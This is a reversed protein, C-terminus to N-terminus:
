FEYIGEIDHDAIQGWGDHWIGTEAVGGLLAYLPLTGDSKAEEGVMYPMLLLHDTKDGGSINVTDADADSVIIYDAGADGVMTEAAAGGSGKKNELSGSVLIDSGDGGFLSDVGKNGVVVDEGKEGTLKNSQDDGMLTDSQNSGQLNEIAVYVDGEAEGEKGGNILDANVGETSHIYTATDTDAGGDLTEAGVRGELIDDDNGGFILDNGGGGNLYDFGANGHLVSDANSGGKLTDSYDSGVFIIGNDFASQHFQNIHDHAGVDGGKVNGYVIAKGDSVFSRIGNDFLTKALDNFYSYNWLGYSASSTGLTDFTASTIEQSTRL